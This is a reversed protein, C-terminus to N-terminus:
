APTASLWDVAYRHGHSELFTELDHLSLPAPWPYRSAVERLLADDYKAYHPFDLPYEDLDVGLTTGHQRARDLVARWQEKSPLGVAEVGHQFLMLYLEDFPEDVSDLYRHLTTLSPQMNFKMWFPVSGTRLGWYPENVIFSSVLLRNAPIRRQRYWWRHLDAVMPSPDDPEEFVLRKVRYGHEDAFREIDDRLAPEFGWEAEPSRGDPQPGDWRRVPSDYRELYEAVRESGEHFEEETAGGLAGHQFVYREGLRTTGWTRTCEPVIITGGPELRERLFREYGPGLTRRKVRFYTLARVMLRDQNADHMHHLQWDPLAEMMRHGYRRAKEMAATPDDPHVRQRVPVLLTQPLWPIGMAAYLNVLAGCSSGVAVAPYPGPPYEEALWDAAAEMDLRHVRRPSITEAAGSVVFGKERVRSPLLNARRAAPKLSPPNGLAPFPEGRLAHATAQAMATASDFNAVFNPPPM